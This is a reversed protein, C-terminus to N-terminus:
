TLIDKLRDELLEDIKAREHKAAFGLMASIDGDDLVLVLQKDNNNVVDRCRKLMLPKDEVTRCALIGVFGRKRNLRGILQDLENNKPDSSYNKCEVTVYPAHYGHANVLRSFFGTTASNYFFIDLRKRGEDVRQEKTPRTLAPYFLETFAGIIFNQYATADAIGPSIAKLAEVTLSRDIDRGKTQRGEISEDDIANAAKAPLSDKYKDLVRGNKETFSYLFEKSVKYKAKLDEKYVKPEGNKLLHVLSDGARIHEAELFPLVHHTYFEMYDAVLKRRVAVKPVLILGRGEYTPLDAYHAEWREDEPNWYTGAPVNEMPVDHLDCQEQTYAVLEGRIVNITLDSIKDSGIGPMLMEFDGLDKLRGSGVAKSKSLTQYLQLAQKHGWGRGQPSSKSQGLRTENPERLNSLLMMAKERDQEKLATLLLQFYNVVLDGCVRLWDVPSIHLAYPDVYLEIDTELPIDVFDLQSQPKNLRFHDSFRYLTKARAVM